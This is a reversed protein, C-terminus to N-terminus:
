FKSIWPRIFVARVQRDKLLSFYKIQGKFQSGSKLWVGAPHWGTVPRGTRNGAHSRNMSELGYTMQNNQIIHCAKGGKKIYILNTGGLAPALKPVEQLAALSHTLVCVTNDPGTALFGRPGEPCCKRCRRYSPDRCLYSRVCSRGCQLHGLRTNMWFQCSQIEM